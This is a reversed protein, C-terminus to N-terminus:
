SLPLRLLPLRFDDHDCVPKFFQLFRCRHILDLSKEDADGFVRIELAQIYNGQGLFMIGKGGVKEKRREAFDRIIGM